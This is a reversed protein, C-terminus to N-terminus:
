NSIGEEQDYRDENKLPTIINSSKINHISKISRASLIYELQM